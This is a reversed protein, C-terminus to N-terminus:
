AEGRLARDHAILASTKATLSRKARILFGLARLVRAPKSMGIDQCLRCVLEGADPFFTFIAAKHRCRSCKLESM